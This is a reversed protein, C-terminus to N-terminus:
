DSLSLEGINEFVLVLVIRSAYYSDKATYGTAVVNSSPGPQQDMM